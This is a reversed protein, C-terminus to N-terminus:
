KVRKGLAQQLLRRAESLNLTLFRFKLKETNTRIQMEYGESREDPASPRMKLRVQKVQDNMVFFNAPQENLIQQPAMQLYNEGSNATFMAGWQNFFGGGQQKAAEKAARINERQMQSTQHAFILRHSTVVCTFVQRKLGLFGSNHQAGPLAGLVIESSIGPAAPMAPPPAPPPAYAAPPAQQPPQPPTFPAPPPVYAEQIVTAAISPHISELALVTDGIRIQDGSALITPQIVRQENVFTGNSSGLDTLVWRGNQQQLRAHQRSARTDNLVITCDSQRGLVATGSLSYISQSPQGQVVRLRWEGAASQAAYSPAVPPQMKPLKGWPANANTSVATGCRPCRALVDSFEFHCQQCQM